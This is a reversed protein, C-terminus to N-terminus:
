PEGSRPAGEPGRSTTAALVLALVEQIGEGTLASVRPYGDGPGGLDSKNEAVIFPTAPFALRISELLHRQADIPYGCTETPDLLFLVADAVHTLAAVAQREIKNRDEMPRDLLGPTDLIQYRQVGRDFHGVSVGKTTFPYEAVKPKASSVARVFASKGVNAHGAVVVTPLEPDIAPLRRLARRAEALGGLDEAIQKVISAFRGFAERRLAVLERPATRGVRRVYDRTVRAATDAAWDAAGLHKKLRGVDVLIDTIERYFPPLRDLSPFGKVYARLTSEITQGAIQVRAVALNRAKTARDKGKATAKSARRFAKDIIEDATLVTPLEFM